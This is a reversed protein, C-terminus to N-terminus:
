VIVQISELIDNYIFRRKRPSEEQSGEHEGDDDDESNRFVESRSRKTRSPRGAKYNLIPAKEEASLETPQMASMSTSQIEIIFIYIGSYTLVKKLTKGM